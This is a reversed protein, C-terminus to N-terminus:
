ARNFIMEDKGEVWHLRDQNDVYMMFIDTDGDPGTASLYNGSRTYTFSTSVGGYAITANSSSAFTIIVGGVPHGNLSALHWTGILPDSGGSGGGGGCGVAWLALAVLLLAVAIRKM